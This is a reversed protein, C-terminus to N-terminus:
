LFSSSTQLPLILKLDSQVLSFSFSQSSTDMNDLTIQLHRRFERLSPILIDDTSANSNSSNSISFFQQQIVDVTRRESILIETSAYLSPSIPGDGKQPTTTSESSQLQRIRAHIFDGNDEADEQDRLLSYITTLGGAHDNGDGIRHVFPIVWKRSDTSSTNTHHETITVHYYLHPPLCGHPQEMDPPYTGWPHPTGQLVFLVDDDNPSRPLASPPSSSPLLPASFITTQENTPRFVYVIFATGDLYTAVPTPSTM